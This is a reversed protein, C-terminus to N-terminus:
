CTLLTEIFGPRKRVIEKYYVYFFWNINEEIDSFMGESVHTLYLNLDAQVNACDSWFKWHVCKAFGHICLKKVHVIFVSWVTCLYLSIQTKTSCVDASISEWASAWIYGDTVILIELCMNKKGNVMGMLVNLKCYELNWYILNVMETVWSQCHLTEKSLSSESWVVTFTM